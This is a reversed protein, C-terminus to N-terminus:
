PARTTLWHAAPAGKIDNQTPVFNGSSSAIGMPVYRQEDQPKRSNYARWSNAAFYLSGPVLATVGRPLAHLAAVDADSLARNFVSLEDFLGVYSLGM